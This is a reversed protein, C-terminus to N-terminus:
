KIMDISFDSSDITKYGYEEFITKSKKDTPDIAINYKRLIMGASAVVVDNIDTLECDGDYDFEINNDLLLDVIREEGNYLLKVESRFDTTKNDSPMLLRERNIVNCESLFRKVKVSQIPIISIPMDTILLTTSRSRSTAVNFLNDSFAFGTNRIPVYFITYDVTEGQIRNITEVLLDLKQDDKCFEEQLTQTTAVFPSLIALRRSPYFNDFVAVIKQILELAGKSCTAGSSGYTEYIITGGEDPFFSQMESQVHFLTRQEQVSTFNGGYFYKTSSTSAPTLRFSTTMRFSPANKSCVFTKMGYTQTEIDIGEYDSPNEIDTVPPLQMPDGVILCQRGLKMFAAIATLYAQSAEEIVILDYIPEEVKNIIRSLSYYTSCLLSGHAALLDKDAPILFPHRKKEEATLVTKSISGRDILPKITEQSILSILSANSQTTVCVSKKDATVLSIIEGLTYSKGTGPLGQLIAIKEKNLSDIVKQAVNETSRLETPKWEDYNITPQLVLDKDTPHSKIYEALNMLMETPPLTELMLFHLEIHSSLAKKVAELMEMKVQGCGITKRDKFFYIPLIDSFDSHAKADERFKLSTCSWDTVDQGYEEYATKTIVCITMPVKLRPATKTEFHLIMQGYETAGVITGYYARGESFLSNLSTNAYQEYKKEQDRRLLKFFKEYKKLIEM